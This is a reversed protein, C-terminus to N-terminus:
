VWLIKFAAYTPNAFAFDWFLTPKSYQMDCMAKHYQQKFTFICRKEREKFFIEPYSSSHSKTKVNPFFIRPGM